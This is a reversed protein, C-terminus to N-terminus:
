ENEKIVQLLWIGIILIAGVGILVWSEDPFKSILYGIGCIIFLFLITKINLIKKLM